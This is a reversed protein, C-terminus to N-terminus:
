TGALAEFADEWRRWRPDRAVRLSPYWLSRTGEVADWYHFSSRAGLM